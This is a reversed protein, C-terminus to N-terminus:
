ENGAEGQIEILDAELEGLEKRAQKAEWSISQFYTSLCGIADIEKLIAAQAEPARAQAEAKLHVLRIAEERFYGDLIIKKFDPNTGLRELVDHQEVKVKARRIAAETEQLDRLSM